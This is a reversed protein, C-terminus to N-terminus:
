EERVCPRHLLLWCGAVLLLGSGALLWCWAVLRLDRAEPGYEQKNEAKASQQISIASLQHASLQYSIASLQHAVHHFRLV